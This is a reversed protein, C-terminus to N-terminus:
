SFLKELPKGEVDYIVSMQDALHYIRAVSPISLGINLKNHNITQM